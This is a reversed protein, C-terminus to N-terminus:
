ELELDPRQCEEQKVSYAKRLDEEFPLPNGEVGLLGLLWKALDPNAILVPGLLYTAIVRGQRIGELKTDPNAGSGIQVHCLAQEETIGYTHSFRSTYGLLTMGDLNAQILTNFRKPSQRVAYTNFVGLGDVRSGDERQIYTGLLELANGVFFFLCRGEACLAQIQQQYPMLRRLIREQNQESMSCLYCLDVDGDLFAPRDNLTTEIFEAEPLCLRLYQTNGKDGYLCCLEPYLIEIKM